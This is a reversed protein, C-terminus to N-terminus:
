EAHQQRYLLLNILVIKEREKAVLGRSHPPPSPPASSGKNIGGLFLYYRIELLTRRKLVEDKKEAANFLYNEVALVIAESEPSFPKKKVEVDFLKSLM